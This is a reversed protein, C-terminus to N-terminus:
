ARGSSPCDTQRVEPTESDGRAQPLARSETTMTPVPADSLRSPARFVGATRGYFNRDRPVPRMNSQMCVM